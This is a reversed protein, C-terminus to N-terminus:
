FIPAADYSNGGVEIFKTKFFFTWRSLFKHGAVGYVKQYAKSICLLHLKKWIEASNALLEKLVYPTKTNNYRFSICHAM